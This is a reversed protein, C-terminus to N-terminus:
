VHVEMRCMPCHMSCQQLAKDICRAHFMHHCSLQKVRSNSRFKTLCVSCILREGTSQGIRYEEYERFPANPIANVQARTARRPPEAEAAFSEDEADRLRIGHLPNTLIIMSTAICRSWLEGRRERSSSNPYVFPMQFSHEDFFLARFRDQVHIEALHDRGIFLGEVVDVATQMCQLLQRRSDPRTMDVTVFSLRDM